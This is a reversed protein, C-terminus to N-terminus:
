SKVICETMAKALDKGKVRSGSYQMDRKCVKTFEEEVELMSPNLPCPGFAGDEKCFKPAIFDFKFEVQMSFEFCMCKVSCISAVGFLIITLLHFVLKVVYFLENIIIICLVKM